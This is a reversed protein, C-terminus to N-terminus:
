RTSEAKEWVPKAKGTAQRYASVCQALITMSYYGLLRLPKNKITHNISYLGLGIACAQAAILFHMLVSPHHIDFLVTCTLFIIHSLWLTYRCTRHGFYFLTFWKLRFFNLARPGEVFIDFITRNMRVKRKFEDANDEGAKEYSIAAPNFKAQKGQMAYQYPMAGDHCRILPIDIYENNRVAYISGNGATITQFRSEIDRMSLDLNWYTSEAEATSNDDNSYVLKGCVYSIQPNSFSAVLERIANNAFKANADTMVLIEGTALRQGENQANTKGKHDVTKHLIINNEPHNKIFEEVILNTDDTSYDSTVIIQFKEIPYDLRIANELKSKIVNEENHAVIMYTVTPEYDYTKVIRSPKFIKDLLKLLVPYGVMAFIILCGSVIMLFIIVRIM